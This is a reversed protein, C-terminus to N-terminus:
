SKTLELETCYRIVKILDVEKSFDIKEADLFQEILKKDKSFIKSLSNKSVKYSRRNRDIFFFSLVPKLLVTNNAPLITTIGSSLDTYSAINAVSGLDNKNNYAGKKEIGNITYQYKKTLMINECREVVELYGFEPDAHFILGGIEAYDVVNNNAILLTDGKLDIYMVEGKLYCYNLRAPIAQGKKYYLKGYQFNAFQFRDRPLVYKIADQGNKVRLTKTPQAQLYSAGIAVLVVLFRFFIPPLIM